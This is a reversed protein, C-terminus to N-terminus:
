QFAHQLLKINVVVFYRKAMLQLWRGCNCARELTTISHGSNRPGRHLRRARQRELGRVHSTTSSDKTVSNPSTFAAITCRQRARQAAVFSLLNGTVTNRKLHTDPKTAFGRYFRRSSGCHGPTKLRTNNPLPTAIYRLRHFCDICPSPLPLCRLTACM